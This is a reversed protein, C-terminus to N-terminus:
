AMPRAKNRRAARLSDAAFLILGLWVLCFSILQGRNLTEGFLLIGCLFQMTPALYQLLGLTAMPLRRAAVAFLLLPVTTILGSGILLATTMGDGGFALAGERSTFALWGLSLPALLLTEAALGPM